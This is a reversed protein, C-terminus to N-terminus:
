AAVSRLSCHVRSRSLAEYRSAAYAGQSRAIMINSPSGITQCLQKKLFHLSNKVLVTVAIRMDRLYLSRQEFFSLSKKKFFLEVHGHLGHDNYLYSSVYISTNVIYLIYHIYYIYQSTFTGKLGAITTWTDPCMSLHVLYVLHIVYQIYQISQIYMYVNIFSHTKIAVQLFNTHDVRIPRFM